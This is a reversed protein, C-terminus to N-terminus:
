KPKVYMRKGFIASGIRVMNSGNSLAIKYDNSMGMSLTDITPFYDKLQKFVDNIYNFQKQIDELSSQPKSMGMVGRLTLHQLAKIASALEILKTTGIIGHREREGSINVQILINLKEMNDPRYQNLLTAHKNNDVSHVWSATQAIYKLKNSQLSGIFHWNINLDKCEIAKNRFEPMYNEAFDRQGHNYLERIVSTDFSKTVAVLQAIQPSLNIEEKVEEYRELLTKM